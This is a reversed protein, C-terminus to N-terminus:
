ISQSSVVKTIAEKLGELNGLYRKMNIVPVNHFDAITIAQGTGGTQRTRKAHTQCGDATYCLVFKVPSKLDKGLVQFANRMMLLKFKPELKRWAPHADISIAESMEVHKKKLWYPSNHQRFNKWPLFILCEIGAAIAAKEFLEDCHEAAGSTMVTGPWTSNIWPVIRDILYNLKPVDETLPKRAGIGAWTFSM